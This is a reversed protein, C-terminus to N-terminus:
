LLNLILEKFDIFNEINILAQILSDDKLIKTFVKIIKEFDPDDKGPPSIYFVIRLKDSDKGWSIDAKSIVTFIEAKDKIPSIPHPIAVLTKFVISGFNERLLTQDRFIEEMEPTLALSKYILNLVEDKTCPNKNILFNKESFYKEFLTPNTSPVIQEGSWSDEYSKILKEIEEDILACDDEDLFVSVKVSPVAIVLGELDVSSIILDVDDLNKPTIEYYGIVNKINITNTYENQIRNKLMLGTSFGSACVVLVNIKRNFKNRELASLIYIVLYSREDDTIDMNEFISFKKFSDVVLDFYSTYQTKIKDTLPNSIYLGSVVRNELAKLHEIFNNMFVNDDLLNINLKKSLYRLLDIVQNYDKFSKISNESSLKTKSLLQLYIYKKEEIPLDIAFSKSIRRIVSKAFDLFEDGEGKAIDKDYNDILCNIKVREIVLAFHIVLNQIAYDNVSIGYERIEDLLIILLQSITAKHFLNLDELENIFSNSYISSFFFDLIFHRKELEKGSISLYSNDDKVIDLGYDKLKNRLSYIDRQLTSESVFLIELLDDFTLAKNELLLNELIYKERGKKDYIQDLNSMSAKSKYIYDIYKDHDGIVLKFGSGKKAVIEFINKPVNESILNINTRITKESFGVNYGIETSTCYKDKNKYLFKIIRIERDSLMNRRVIMIGSFRIMFLEIKETIADTFTPPTKQKLNQAQFLM